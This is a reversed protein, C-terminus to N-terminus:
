AASVEKDQARGDAVQLGSLVCYWDHWFAV